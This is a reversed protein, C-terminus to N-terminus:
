YLTNKHTFNNTLKLLTNLLYDPCAKLMETPVLASARNLKLNKIATKLEELSYDKQTMDVQNDLMKEVEEAIKKHREELEVNSNEQTNDSFLKIFFQEFEEPNTIKHDTKRERVEKILKWYEAPNEEEIAELRKIMTDKWQKKKLKILKKYEKRTTIM